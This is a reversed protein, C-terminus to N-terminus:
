VVGRTECTPCTSSRLHRHDAQAILLNGTDEILNVLALFAGSWNSEDILNLLHRRQCEVAEVAQKQQEWLETRLEAGGQAQLQRESRDPM